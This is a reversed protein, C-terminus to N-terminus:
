VIDRGIADLPAFESKTDDKSLNLYTEERTVLCANEQIAEGYMNLLAEIVAVPKINGGSSADVFLYLYGDENDKFEYIGPKVDM